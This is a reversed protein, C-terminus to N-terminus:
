FRRNRTLLGPAPAARPRDPPRGKPPPVKYTGRARIKQDIWARVEDLDWAISNPGIPIRKPFKNQKELLWIHQPTYPVMMLLQARRILRRLPPAAAPM